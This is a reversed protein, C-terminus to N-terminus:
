RVFIDNQNEGNSMLEFCTVFTILNAIPPAPHTSHRYIAFASPRMPQRQGSHCHKARSFRVCRDDTSAVGHNSVTLPARATYEIGM